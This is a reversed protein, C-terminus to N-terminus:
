LSELKVAFIQFGSFLVNPLISEQEKRSLTIRQGENKSDQAKVSLSFYLDSAQIMQRPITYIDDQQLVKNSTTGM